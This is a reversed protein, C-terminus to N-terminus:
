GAFVVRLVYYFKDFFQKEPYKKCKPFKFILYGFQMFFYWLGIVVVSFFDAKFLEYFTARNLSIVAYQLPVSITHLSPFEPICCCIISYIFNVFHFVNKKKCKKQIYFITWRLHDLTIFLPKNDCSVKTTSVGIIGLGHNM